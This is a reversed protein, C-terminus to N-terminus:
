MQGNSRDHDSDHLTFRFVNIKIVGTTISVNTDSSKFFYHLKELKQKFNQLNEHVPINNRFLM